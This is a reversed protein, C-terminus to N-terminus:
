VIVFPSHAFCALSGPSMKPVTCLGWTILKGIDYYVCVRWLGSHLKITTPLIIPGTANILFDKDVGSLSKPPMEDEELESKGGMIMESFDMPETTYLWYDTVVSLSLIGCALLGLLLSLIDLGRITCNM